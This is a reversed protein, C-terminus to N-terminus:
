TSATATVNLAKLHPLSGLPQLAEVPLTNYSLDLRELMIFAASPLSLTRLSNCALRLERLSPLNALTGM